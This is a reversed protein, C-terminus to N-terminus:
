CHEAYSVGQELRSVWRPLSGSYRSPMICCRDRGACCIGRQTKGLILLERGLKGEVDHRLELDTVQRLRSSAPAVAGYAKGAQGAAVAGATGVLPAEKVRGGIVEAVAKGVDGSVQGIAAPTRGRHLRADLLQLRKSVTLLRPEFRPRVLHEDIPDPLPHMRSVRTRRETRGTVAGIVCVNIKPRRGRRDGVGSLGHRGEPCKDAIGVSRRRRVQAVEGKLLDFGVRRRSVVCM